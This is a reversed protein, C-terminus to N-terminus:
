KHIEALKKHTNKLTTNLIEFVKLYYEIWAMKCAARENMPCKPLASIFDDLEPRVVGGLAAIMAIMQSGHEFFKNAGSIGVYRDALYEKRLTEADKCDNGMMKAMLMELDM